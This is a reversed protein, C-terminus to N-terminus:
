GMSQLFVRQGSSASNALVVKSFGEVEEDIMAQQLILKQELLMRQRLMRRKNRPLDEIENTNSSNGFFQKQENLLSQMRAREEDHDIVQVAISLSGGCARIQSVFSLLRISSISYDLSNVFAVIQPRWIQDASAREDFVTNDTRQTSTTRSRHHTPYRTELHARLLERFASKEGSVLYKLTFYLILGNIGSGWSLESQSRQIMYTFASVLLMSIVTFIWSIKLMLWFCSVSGVLSIIWMYDGGIKFRPRWDPSRFASLLCCALNTTGYCMLFCLTTIQALDELKQVFIFPLTLLCTCIIAPIPEDRILINLNLKQALPIVEVSLSHLVASSVM